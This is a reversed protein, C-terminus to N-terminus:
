NSTKKRLERRESMTIRLHLVFHLVTLTLRILSYFSHNKERVRRAPAEDVEMPEVQEPEPQAEKVAKAGRKVGRRGTSSAPVPAVKNEVSSLSGTAEEVVEPEPEPEIKNVKKAKPM